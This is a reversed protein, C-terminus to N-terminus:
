GWSQHMKDGETEVSM